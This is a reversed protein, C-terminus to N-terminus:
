CGACTRSYLSPLCTWILTHPSAVRSEKFFFLHAPLRALCSQPWAPELPMKCLVSIHPPHTLPPVKDVALVLFGSHAHFFSNLFHLFFYGPTFCLQFTLM